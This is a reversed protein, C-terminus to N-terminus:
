AREARRRAFLGQPRAILILFILAFAVGDRYGSAGWAVIMTQVFAILYAAITAGLLSGVGGVVLIAFAALLYTNGTEVTQGSIRIALLLGALGALAGSLFLTRIGVSRVNIGMLEATAPSYAVARVARGQRSIKIWVALASTAVLCTALIVIEINSIRLGMGTYSTVKFLGAAPAFVRNDTANAICQNLIMSAGLSAVLVSLEAQRKNRFRMRIPGFALMEMAAAATGGVLMAIVAVAVFPLHTSAKSFEYGVYGGTVFLSGHALNLVDLTGWALSLGLAFLLLISGLVVANLLQQEM